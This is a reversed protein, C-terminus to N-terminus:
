YGSDTREHLTWEVIDLRCKQEQQTQKQWDALEVPAYMWGESMWLHQHKYPAEGPYTVVVLAVGIM